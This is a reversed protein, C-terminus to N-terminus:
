RVFVMKKVQRFTGARLQYFYLGGAVVKGSADKGDWTLAHRGAPFRQERALVAVQQGLVNYIVLSVVSATPLDFEIRTTPNFPNPYNQALRFRDPVTNEDGVVSVPNPTFSFSSDPADFPHLAVTNSSDAARFYFHVTGTLPGPIAATFAHPETGQAMSVEKDFNGDSSAYILSVRNPDIGAKSAVKISVELDGNTDVSVTPSNSFAPGHFLVADYANLVGWGMLTDPNAARDATERLADRVQLPTLNPHASLVLAAVGAAAPCSFSTGSVLTYISSSISQSPFGAFVTLGQAVVDPKIRGDATPGVSSFVTLESDPKVAGVAIVSDGDAPAIIIHWDKNRENGASNVVVVGRSVALDAARTTVATNGDMQSPTYFDLYGLSSSVVDVGRNEMWEIGAVWNDEEQPIEVELIETKGLIFSAGFAPGVIQGEKFGGIVSLTETGHNHQAPDDQGAQNETIDDNHIFDHEDIINMNALAEHTRFKFGTDLMGILVGKGVIGLDHVAPVNIIQNQGFSPGYDYTHGTEIRHLDPPASKPSEPRPKKMARAVLRVGKVFPFAAVRKAQKKTLRFSAANLWNSVVLPKFGAAVLKDLYVRSVPLDAEDVLKGPARMKARRKRARASLRREAEQLLLSREGAPVAKDRFFVWYKLTQTSTQAQVRYYLGMSLLLGVVAALLTWIKFTAWPRPRRSQSLESDKSYM